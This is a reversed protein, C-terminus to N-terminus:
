ASGARALAARQRLRLIAVEGLMLVVTAGVSGWVYGAYGGMAFFESWSHWVM